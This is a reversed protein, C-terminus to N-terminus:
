RMSAMPLINLFYHATNIISQVRPCFGLYSVFSNHPSTTSSLHNDNILLLFPIASIHPKKRERKHTPHKRLSALHVLNRTQYLWYRPTTSKKDKLTVRVICVLWSVRIYWFVVRDSDIVRRGALVMLSYIIYPFAIVKTFDDLNSDLCLKILTLYVQRVATSSCNRPNHGSRTFLPPFGDSIESPHKKTCVPIDEVPQRTVSPSFFFSPHKGSMPKPGNPADPPNSARDEVIM